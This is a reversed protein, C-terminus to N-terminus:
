IIIDTLAELHQGEKGNKPTEVEKEKKKTEEQRDAKQTRIDEEGLKEPKVKLNDLLM